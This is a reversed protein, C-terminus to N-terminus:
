PNSQFSFCKIRPKNPTELVILCANAFFNVLRKSSYPKFFLIIVYTLYSRELKFVIVLTKLITTLHSAKLKSSLNWTFNNPCTKELAQWYAVLSWFTQLPKLYTEML